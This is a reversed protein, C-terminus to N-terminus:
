AALTFYAKGKEETRVIQQTGKAGLQSLLASLRQPTMEAPFCTFMVLMDAITYRVGQEMCGLIAEKINENEIQHPTLKRESTSKKNAQELRKEFFAVMEADGIKRYDELARTFGQKMTLGKDAM